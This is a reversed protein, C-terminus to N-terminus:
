RYRYLRYVACSQRDAMSINKGITFTAVPTIFSGYAAETAAPLGASGLLLVADM